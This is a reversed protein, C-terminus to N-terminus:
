LGLSVGRFQHRAIQHYLLALCCRLPWCETFVFFFSFSFLLNLLALTCWEIKFLALTCWSVNLKSCRWLVGILKLCRWLVGLVM